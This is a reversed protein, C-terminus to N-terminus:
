SRLRGEQKGNDPGTRWKLLNAILGFALLLDLGIISCSIALGLMFSRPRYLMEILHRGAPVVVGRLIYDTRLIDTRAGDVTCRWGPYYQDAVVLMRKETCDTELVIRGNDDAIVIYAARSGMKPIDTQVEQEVLDVERPDFRTGNPLISSQVAAIISKPPTVSVKKSFRFRCLARNNEYMEYGPLPDHRQQFRRSDSLRASVGNASNALGRKSVVIYKAGVLDLSASNPDLALVTNGLGDCGFFEVRSKLLLPGFSTIGPLNWLLYANPGLLVNQEEGGLPDVFRFKDRALEMSLSRMSEPQLMASKQVYGDGEFSTLGRL